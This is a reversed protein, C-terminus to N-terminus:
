IKFIFTSVSHIFSMIKKHVQGNELAANYQRIISDVNNSIIRLFNALTRASGPMKSTDKYDYMDESLKNDLEFYRKGTTGSCPGWNDMNVNKMETLRQHSFNGCTHAQIWEHKFLLMVFDEFSIM